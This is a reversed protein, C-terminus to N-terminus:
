HRKRTKKDAKEEPWLTMIDAPALDKNLLNAMIEMPRSVHNFFVKFSPCLYNLGPEGDPTLTFRDKPCGGHCAWRVECERCYKPLTDLKDSGFKQQKVSAIM